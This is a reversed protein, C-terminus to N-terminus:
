PFLLDEDAPVAFAEGGFRQAFETANDPDRFCFLICGRGDEKRFCGMRLEEGHAMFFQVMVDLENGFGREPVNLEVFHPNAIFASAREGNLSDMALGM